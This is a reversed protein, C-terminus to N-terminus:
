NRVLPARKKIEEAKSKDMYLFVWNIIYGPSEVVMKVQVITYDASNKRKGGKECEEKGSHFAENKFLEGPPVSCAGCKYAVTDSYQKRVEVSKVSFLLDEEMIRMAIRHNTMYITGDLPEVGDVTVKCGLITRSKLLEEKSTEEAHCAITQFFIGVLVVMVIAYVKFFTKM